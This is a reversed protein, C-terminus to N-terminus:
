RNIIMVILSTRIWPRLSCASECYARSNGGLTRSKEHPKWALSDQPVRELMKRTTKAEIQLEAVDIRDHEIDLKDKLFEYWLPGLAIRACTAAYLFDPKSVKLLSRILSAEDPKSELDLRDAAATLLQSWSPFLRQHTKRDLVAMSVGAGVFPVVRGDRLRDRLAQPISM